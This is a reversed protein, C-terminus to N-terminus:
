KKTQNLAGRIHRFLENVIVPKQLYVAIGMARAKEANIMESYGTCLIIPMGPRLGIVQEALKAGTMLPMTQDTILLDWQDPAKSYVEWAEHGNTFVGVQYGCSTLIKLMFNRIHEEDDVVMIRESGKAELPIALQVTEPIEQTIITPLYVVFTTGGGPASEVTIRGQHNEVIGHVVALGLGTGKGQEKTTFYPEFIKARTEESMGSGTDRIELTVYQGPPLDVGNIGDRDIITERLSVMLVGGTEQMAHYANTSLNMVLQHIQTPDAMVLAESVIDQKIEITSPISSRLLKLAEKVILSIQLPEVEQEHRRSFTLIQKILETARKSAKYVQRLDDALETGEEVKLRALETYGMIATLINNFDHAIGGALTGISEMKQAQKLHDQMEEKERDAELRASIDRALVMIFKENDLDLLGLRMEVPFTSGDKRRYVSTVTLSSEPFLNNWYDNRYQELSTGADLDSMTMGLLEEKQYGLSDCARQNADILRGDFDHFLFSDVAQNILSRFRQESKLLDHNNKEIQSLMKNYAQALYGIEDTGHVTARMSYDQNKSIQESLLALESIPRTLIACLRSALLFTLFLTVGVVTLLIILAMNKFTRINRQDDVLWVTGINLDDMMIKQHIVLYERSTTLGDSGDPASFTQPIPWPSLGYSAFLEGNSANIRAAIVSPHNALSGMVKEADERIVFALSAQCNYGIVQALSMIENRYTQRHQELVLAYFAVSSLLVAITCVGMLILSLKKRISLNKLQFM